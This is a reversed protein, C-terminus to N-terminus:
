LSRVVLLVRLAMRQLALVVRDLSAYDRMASVLREPTTANGGISLQALVRASLLRSCATQLPVLAWPIRRCEEVEVGPFRCATM